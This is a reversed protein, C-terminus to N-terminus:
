VEITIVTGEPVPLWLEELREAKDKTYNLTFGISPGDVLGVKSIVKRSGGNVLITYGLGDHHFLAVDGSWKHQRILVGDALMSPKVIKSKM